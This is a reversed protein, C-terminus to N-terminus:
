VGNPRSGHYFHENFIVEVKANDGWTNDPEDILGLIKFMAAKAGVDTASLEMISNKTTTNGAAYTIMDGCNFINDATLTASADDQVGFVINADDYVDVFFDGSSAAVVYGAAIGIAITADAAAIVEVTGTSVVKVPDGRYITASPTVKHRTTSFPNGGTLHRLPWFGIPADINAM